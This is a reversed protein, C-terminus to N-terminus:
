YFFTFFRACIFFLRYIQGANNCFVFILGEFFVFFCSVSRNKKSFQKEERGERKADIRQHLERLHAIVYFSKVVLGGEGIPSYRKEDGGDRQADEAENPPM